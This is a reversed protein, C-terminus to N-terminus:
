RHRAAITALSAETQRRADRAELITQRFVDPRPVGDLRLLVNGAADYAVLDGAHYFAQGGRREIDVHDIETLAARGRLTKGLAARSELARNTLVYRDGLIKQTVYLLLALMAAPLGFMLYSLKIGNLKLPISDCLRGIARGAGWAALSPYVTMITNEIQPSVGAIPQPQLATAM